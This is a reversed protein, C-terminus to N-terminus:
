PGKRLHKGMRELEGKLSRDIVTDGMVIRIGGILAPDVELTTSPTVGYKNKLMTEIKEVQLESLPFASVITVDQINQSQKRRSVFDNFVDSLLSLKQNDILLNVLNRQEPDMELKDLVPAMARKIDEPRLRPNHLLADTDEATMARSLLGLKEEWDATNGKRAALDFAAKAYPRALKRADAKTYRPEM